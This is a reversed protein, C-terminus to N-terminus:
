EGAAFRLTRTDREASPYLPAAREAVQPCASGTAHAPGDEPAGDSGDRFLRSDKFLWSQVRWAEGAAAQDQAM